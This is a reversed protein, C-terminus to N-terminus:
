LHHKLQKIELNPFENKLERISEAAIGSYGGVVVVGEAGKVIKIEDYEPRDFLGLGKLQRYTIEYSAKWDKFHTQIHDVYGFLQDGVEGRLEPNNGLKVEIV